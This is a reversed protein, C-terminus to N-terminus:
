KLQPWKYRLFWLLGFSSGLNSIDGEADNLLVLREAEEVELHVVEINEGEVELGGGESKRMEDTVEAYFWHGVAGNSLTKTTKIKVIDDKTIHYGCEEEIECIAIEKPTMDKDIIGACMELGVADNRNHFTDKDQTVSSTTDVLYMIRMQKVFVLQKRTKNFIVIFCADTGKAYDWKRRLGVAGETYHTRRLKVFNSPETLDETKHIIVTDAQSLSKNETM